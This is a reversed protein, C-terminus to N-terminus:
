ARVRDWRVGRARNFVLGATIWFTFSLVAVSPAQNIMSLVCMLLSLKLLAPRLPDGNDVSRWAALAMQIYVLFFLLAGLVGFYLLVAVVYVDELFAINDFDLFVRPVIEISRVATLVREPEVGLGLLLQPGSYVRFFAPGIDRGIGLRNGDAAAVYEDIPLGGIRLEDQVVVGVLVLSSVAALRGWAGFCYWIALGATLMLTFQSKSAWVFFLAALSVLVRMSRKPTAECALVYCVMVFYAFSIQNAFTGFVSGDWEEILQPIPQMAGAVEVPKFLHFALPVGTFQALGILLEVAAFAILADRLLRRDGEGVSIAAVASGVIIGRLYVGFFKVQYVLPTGNMLFSVTVVALFLLVTGMVARPLYLRLSRLHAFVVVASGVATLELVADLGPVGPLLRQLLGKASLLAVPLVCLLVLPLKM